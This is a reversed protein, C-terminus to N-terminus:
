AGDQEQHVELVAHDLPEAGRRHDLRGAPRRLRRAAGTDRHHEDAHREARPIRLDSRRVGGERGHRRLRAVLVQLVVRDRLHVGREGGLGALRDHDLAPDAREAAAVEVHQQAARAGVAQHQRADGGAADHEGREPLRGIQVVPERHEGVGAGVAVGLHV